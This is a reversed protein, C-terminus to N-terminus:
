KKGTQSISGMRTVSFMYLTYTSDIAVYHAIGNFQTSIKVVRVCKYVKTKILTKTNNEDSSSSYHEKLEIMIVGLFVMFVLLVVSMIRKCDM